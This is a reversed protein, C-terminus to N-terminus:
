DAPECRQAGCFIRARLTWDARRIAAGETVIPMTRKIGEESRYVNPYKRFEDKM